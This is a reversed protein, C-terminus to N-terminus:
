INKLRFLSKLFFTQICLQLWRVDKFGSHKFEVDCTRFSTGSTSVKSGLICNQRFGDNLIVSNDTEHTKNQFAFNMILFETEKLM